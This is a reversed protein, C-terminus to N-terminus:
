RSHWRKSIPGTKKGTKQWWEERILVRIDEKNDEKDTYKSDEKM